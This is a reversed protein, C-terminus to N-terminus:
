VGEGTALTNGTCTTCTTCSKPPQPLPQWHTFSSRREDVGHEADYWTEADPEYQRIRPKDIHNRWVLVPASLRRMPGVEPLREKVSVWEGVGGCRPTTSLSQDPTSTLAVAPLKLNKLTEAYLEKGADWLPNELGDMWKASLDCLTNLLTNYKTLVEERSAYGADGPAASAARLANRAILWAEQCAGTEASLTARALETKIDM